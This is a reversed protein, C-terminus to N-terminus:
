NHTNLASIKEDLFDRLRVDSTKERVKKYIEIAKGQNQLTKVFIFEVNPLCQLYTLESPYNNIMDEIVGGAEKYKKLKMHTQVLFTSALYGLEKGKNQKEITEYFVVAENYAKAAEIENGERNYRDGIYVPIQFGPSTDSYKDRLIKYETLAKGWRNQKEYVNGKLFCAESLFTRDSDNTKIIDDLVSLAKDYKKNFTYFEALAIHARKATNTGPYRELVTKLDTEVSAAMSPPVVDPNAAIKDGTRVARYLLREAAYEGGSGLVSLIAYIVALIVILFFITKKM